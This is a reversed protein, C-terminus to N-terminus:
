RMRRSVPSGLTFDSLLDPPSIEELFSVIICLFKVTFINSISITSYIVFFTVLKLGLYMEADIERGSKFEM